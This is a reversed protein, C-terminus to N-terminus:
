ERVVFVVELEEPQWALSLNAQQYVAAEDKNVAGIRGIILGRPWGAEGSTVVLQEEALNYKTLVKEIIVGGGKGQAQGMVVSDSIMASALFDPHTVLRVRSRQPQVEIVQGLLHNETVVSLGEVVGADSGVALLLTQNERGIVHGLIFQWDPPLPSGMLKKLRQNEKVLDAIKAELATEERQCSSEQNPELRAQYLKQQLPQSAKELPRRLWDLYGSNDFFFLGGATLILILITKQLNNKM